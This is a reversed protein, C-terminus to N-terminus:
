IVEDLEAQLSKSRVELATAQALLARLVVVVLAVGGIVLSIGLVMGIVGPAVEDGPMTRNRVAAIVAIAAVLAAGTTIAGIVVDVYRFAAPSFVTGRSVMSLLKWICVATVQLTLLGLVFIVAISVRAWTPEGGNDRWVLPTLVCQVALSGLLGIGIVVRLAVIAPKGM